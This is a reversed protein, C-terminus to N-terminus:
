DSSSVARAFKRAIWGCSFAASLGILVDALFAAILFRRAPTGNVVALADSWHYFTFPWGYRSEWGSNNPGIFMNVGIFGLLVAFLTLWLWRDSRAAPGELTHIMPEM